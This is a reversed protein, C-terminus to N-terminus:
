NFEKLINKASEKDFSLINKISINLYKDIIYDSDGSNYIDLSLNAYNFMTEISEINNIWSNSPTRYEIGYCNGYNQIRIKGPRGYYKQRNKDYYTYKSQLVFANGIFIDFLKVQKIVNPNHPDNKYKDFEYDNSSSIHIHGGGFRNKINTADVERSYLGSYIDIDRDCGFRCAYQYLPMLSLDTVIKDLDFKVVPKVFVAYKEPIMNQLINIGKQIINYYDIYNNTPRTNFEFAAGDAIIKIDNDKYFVPHNIDSNDIPNILENIIFYIPPISLKYTKNIVFVEPDSGFLVKNNM